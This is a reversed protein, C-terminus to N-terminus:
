WKVHCVSQSIGRPNVLPMLPILIHFSSPPIFFIIHSFSSFVSFSTSFSPLPYLVYLFVSFSYSPSYSPFYYLSSSPPPPFYYVHPLSLLLSTSFLHCFLLSPPSNLLHSFVLQRSFVAALPFIISLLPLFLIFHPLSAHYSIDVTIKWCNSFLSVRPTHFSFNRTM